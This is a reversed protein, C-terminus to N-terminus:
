NSGGLKREVSSLRLVTDLLLRRMEPSLSMSLLTTHAAGMMRVAVLTDQAEADTLTVKM